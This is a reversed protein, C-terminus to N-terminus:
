LNADVDCGEEIELRKLDHRLWDLFAELTDAEDKIVIVDDSEEDIEFIYREQKIQFDLYSFQQGSIIKQLHDEDYLIWTKAPGRHPHETIRLPYTM